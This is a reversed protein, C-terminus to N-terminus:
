PSIKALTTGVLLIECENMLWSGFNLSWALSQMIQNDNYTLFLVVLKSINSLLYINTECVINSHQKM